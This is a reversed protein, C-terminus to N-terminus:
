FNNNRYFLQNKPICCNENLGAGKLFLLLYYFYDTMKKVFFQLKGEPKDNFGEPTEM